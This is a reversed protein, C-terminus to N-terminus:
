ADSAMSMVASTAPRRMRSRIRIFAGLTGTLPLPAPLFYPRSANVRYRLCAVYHGMEHSLLITMVTIAFPFGALIALPQSLFDHLQFPLEGAAHFVGAMATTLFTISFLLIHIGPGRSPAPVAAQAGDRYLEPRPEM